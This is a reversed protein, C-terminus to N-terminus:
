CSSHYREPAAGRSAMQSSSRDLKGAMTRLIAALERPDVGDAAMVTRILPDSLADTLTMERHSKNM